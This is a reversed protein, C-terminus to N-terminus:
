IVVGNKVMGLEDFVDKVQDRLDQALIVKAQEELKVQM